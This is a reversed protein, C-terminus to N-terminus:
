KVQSFLAEIQARVWRRREVPAVPLGSMVRALRLVYDRVQGPEARQRFFERAQRKILNRLVAQRAQRKGIVLGLRSREGTAAPQYYLEFCVSRM